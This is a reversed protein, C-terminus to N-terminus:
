GMDGRRSLVLNLTVLLYMNAFVHPKTCTCDDKRAHSYAVVGDNACARNDSLVDWGIGNSHATWGLHNTLYSFVIVFKLAALGNM